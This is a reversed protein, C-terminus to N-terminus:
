AAIPAAKAFYYPSIFAFPFWQHQHSKTYSKSTNNNTGQDVKNYYSVDYM